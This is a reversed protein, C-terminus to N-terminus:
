GVSQSAAMPRYGKKIGVILNIGSMTLGAGASVGFSPDYIESVSIQFSQCTQRQLFIRWQELSTGGGYPNGSGYVPDQGYTGSFNTPAITVQQSPSAEYEYAIGVSLQHPTMFTGLLYFYYAREYGQLGALNFWSTVFSLLVPSSGDIYLGPSEQLASGTSSIFTHLSQYITSSIGPIGTFVGWQGYFYDYMLTQGTDLTFRVQNTAPVNLASLVVSSNFAEVPAGIYTTSLDRGLLWIGKDSQFMLGNPMFVVSNPYVCGVTSTIFVPDSFDNNAGTNDPGNGTIYYIADKKFVILKDDMASLATIQGTNSQASTTPAVYITFLDSMEVPTGEIVQKSYWLLNKDEADVLILRSRYLAMASTAPPGINEVVGGTTYPVANGVIQADSNTDVFYVVDVTPDNLVPSTNSTVQYYTQQAVSWRYVVIVVNTKDTLRLTPLSLTISGTTGSGTTTVAEPISPASRFINGQSDTWQYLKIYFYANTNTLGDPQAHVSGGSTSWVANNYDPWVNFGQECITYGDYMWLFGGSLNLNNGIESSVVGKTTITFTVLNVGTQTYVAPSTSGQTKNTPVLVDAILYPVSIKNGFVSLDPIGVPLLGGGNSYAVKAVIEASGNILFFSPQYPPPFATLMYVVGDIITAKSALGVSRILTTLSGVTGTSTCSITSIYPTPVSSSEYFNAKELYVTVSGNQAVSTISHYLPSNFLLTPALVQTLGPSVSLTYANNSSDYFSVYIIPTNTEDATVSLFVANHGSFAVTGSLILGSTLSRMRIAGGGDSGNWALYLTNNTVYGDWAVGSAPTYQATVDVIPGILSTNAISISFYKLHNTGGILNTFVVIFYNGLVFVRPSGVVTGTPPTIVSQPLINQGTLADSVSYKYQPTVAGGQETYVTCVLGSSSLASDCQTQNLGNRVLPLVDVNVQEIPGKDIWTNSPESYAALRSGIATLNGNFTTAYTYTDNPLAALNKFGNRKQLLGAKTFVSNHLSLFEGVALQKDDTKTDIGKSFNVNVTQKVPM